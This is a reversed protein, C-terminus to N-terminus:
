VRRISTRLSVLRISSHKNRMYHFETSDASGSQTVLVLLKSNQTSYGSMRGRLDSHSQCLTCRRVISKFFQPGLAKTFIDAPNDASSVHKPYILGNKVAIKVFEERIAIHKMKSHNAEDNAFAIAGTNGCHTLTPQTQNYGLESLVDVYGPLKRLPQVSRLRRPKM